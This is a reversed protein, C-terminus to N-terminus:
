IRVSPFAPPLYLRHPMTFGLSDSLTALQLVIQTRGYSEVRKVRYVREQKIDLDAELHTRLVTKRIITANDVYGDFLLAKFASIDIDPQGIQLKPHQWGADSSVKEGTLKLPLGKYFIGQYTVDNDGKFHVTSGAGPSLSFLDVRGDAILKHSDEIHSAPLVAPM